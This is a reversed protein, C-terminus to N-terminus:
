SGMVVIEYNLAGSSVGNHTLRLIRAATVLTWGAPNEFLHNAGAPIDVKAAAVSCFPLIFPNSSAAGVQLSAGGEPENNKIWIAKIKDFNCLDGHQNRLAALDLDETGSAATLSDSIYSANDIQKRSTGNAYANKSQTRSNFSIEPQFNDSIAKKLTFGLDVGINGTATTSM